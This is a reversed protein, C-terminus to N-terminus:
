KEGKYFKKADEPNDFVIKLSGDKALSVTAAKKNIKMKKEGEYTHEKMIKELNNGLDATLGAGFKSMEKEAKKLGELMTKLGEIAKNEM